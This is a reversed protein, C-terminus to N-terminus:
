VPFYEVPVSYVKALRVLNCKNSLVQGTQHWSLIGGSNRGGLCDLDALWECARRSQKLRKYINKPPLADPNSNDSESM